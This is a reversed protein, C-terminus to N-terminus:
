REFLKLLWGFMSRTQEEAMIREQLANNEALIARITEQILSSETRNSLQNMLQELQQVRIQNMEIQTRLNKVAGLDTGTLFRMIQGKADLRRIQEAIETQAQNQERAIMRVQEGIGSETQTGLMLKVQEAVNSMHEAANQNRNLLGEGEDEGVREKEMTAVELSSEEGKNEVTV